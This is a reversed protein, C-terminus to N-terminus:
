FDTSPINRKPYTLIYLYVLFFLLHKLPSDCTWCIYFLIKKLIFHEITDKAFLKTSILFHHETEVLELNSQVSNANM